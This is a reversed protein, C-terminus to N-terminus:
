HEIVPCLPLYGALHNAVEFGTGPDGAVGPQPNLDHDLSILSANELYNECEALM